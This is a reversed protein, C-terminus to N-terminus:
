QRYYDRNCKGKRPSQMWSSQGQRRTNITTLINRGCEIPKWIKPDRLRRAVSQADIEINQIRIFTVHPSYDRHWGFRDSWMTVSTARLCTNESRAGMGPGCIRAMKSPVLSRGQAWICDRHARSHVGWRNNRLQTRLKISTDANSVKNQTKLPTNEM